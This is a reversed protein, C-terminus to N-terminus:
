LSNRREKENLIQQMREESWEEPEIIGIPPRQQMREVYAHFAAQDQRHSLVYARLEEDTMVSFDPHSM